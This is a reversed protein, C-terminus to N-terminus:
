SAASRNRVTKGPVQDLIRGIQSQDGTAQVKTRCARLLFEILPIYHEKSRLAETLLSTVAM